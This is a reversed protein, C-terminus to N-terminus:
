PAPAGEGGPGHLSAVSLEFDVRTARSPALEVVREAPPFRPHWVRLTRRGPDLDGLEFGGSSSVVTYPGPSAFLLASIDGRDLLFLQQQGPAVARLEVVEGPELRRVVRASPASLLHSEDTANAVEITGGLAVAARDPQLGPGTAGSRIEIRVRDGSPPGGDAYVVAFGPHAYDVFSVEGYRRDAYSDADGGGPTVGERPVLRVTGWAASRGPPPVPPGSACSAVALAASLAIALQRM